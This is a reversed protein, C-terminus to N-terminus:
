QSTLTQKKRRGKCDSISREKGAVTLHANSVSWKKGIPTFSMNVTPFGDPFAITQLKAKESFDVDENEGIAKVTTKGNEWRVLLKNLVIEVRAEDSLLTVLCGNKRLVELADAVEKKM